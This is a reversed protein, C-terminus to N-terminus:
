KTERRLNELIKNATEIDSILPTADLTLGQGGCNYCASQKDHLNLGTGNCVQCDEVRRLLDHMLEYLKARDEM